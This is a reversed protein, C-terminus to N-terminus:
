SEISAIVRLVDDKSCGELAAIQRISYPRRRYRLGRRRGHRDIYTYPVREGELVLQAIRRYRPTLEALADGQEDRWRRFQEIRRDIHRDPEEKRARVWDANEPARRCSECIHQTTLTGLRRTTVDYSCIACDRAQGSEFHRRACGNSCLWYTGEVGCVVCTM